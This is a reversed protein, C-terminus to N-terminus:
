NKRVTMLEVEVSLGERQKLILMYAHKDRLEFRDSFIPFDRGPTAGSNYVEIFTSGSATKSFTPPTATTIRQGVPQGRVYVDLEGGIQLLSVVEVAAEGKALSPPITDIIELHLSQDQVLGKLLFLYNQAEFRQDHSLLNISAGAARISVRHSGPELTASDSLQNLSVGTLPEGDILLEIEGLDAAGHLLQLGATEEEDFAGCGSVIPVFLLLLFLMLTRM